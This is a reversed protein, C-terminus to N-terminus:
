IADLIAQALQDPKTFQPWHSTPLEVITVDKTHVLDGTYPHRDAIMQQMDDRPFTSSIITVPVDYRREDHLHLPDTAAHSPSPIARAAFADLGDQTFDRLEEEGFEEWSPLPMDVDDHAIGDNVNAGEAGPGSDVYVVRAVRDPRRDVAGHAVLGGGSHAVLVVQQADGTASRTSADILDVVVDIHTDLGIGARDTDVSELGPLTVPHTEHGAAELAPTVLDWSSADLWLGPILILKM